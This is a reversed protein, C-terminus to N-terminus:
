LSPSAQEACHWTISRSGRGAVPPARHEATVGATGPAAAPSAPDHGGTVRASGAAAVEAAPAPLCDAPSLPPQDPQVFAEAGIDKVSRIARHRGANLPHRDRRKGSPQHGASDGPDSRATASSHTRRDDVGGDHSTVADGGRSGVGDHVTQALPVQGEAVIAAPMSPVSSRPAAAADPAAAMAAPRQALPWEPQPSEQHQWSDRSVRPVGDMAHGSMNLAARAELAHLEDGAASPAACAGGRGARAHM